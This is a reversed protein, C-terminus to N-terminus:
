ATRDRPGSATPPGWAIRWGCLVHLIAAGASTLIIASTAFRWDWAAILAFGALAALGGPREWKWALLLGFFLGATGVLVFREPWDLDSLLWRGLRVLLALFLLATFTGVVRATWRGVVAARWTASVLTM